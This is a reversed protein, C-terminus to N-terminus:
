LEGKYRYRQDDTNIDMEFLTGQFTHKLEQFKPTVPNKNKCDNTYLVNGTCIRIVGRNLRAFEHLLSLGQGRPSISHPVTSHFPELAWRLADEDQCEEKTLNLFTRVRVPIGIGTDYCAFCFRKGAKPYRAGLVCIADSHDRANNFMEGIRSVMDEHLRPSMEVPMDEVIGKALHLIKEDSELQIFKMEKGPGLTLTPRSEIFSLQLLKEYIAKSFSIMIRKSHQKAFYRLCLVLFLFTRGFRGVTSVALSIEDNDASKIDNQLKALNDYVVRGRCLKETFDIHSKLM